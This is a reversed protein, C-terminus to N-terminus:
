SGYRSSSPSLFAQFSDARALTFDFFALFMEGSLSIRNEESQKALCKIALISYFLLMILTYRIHLFALKLANYKSAGDVPLVVSDFTSSHFIPVSGYLFSLSRPFVLTSPTVGSGSGSQGSCIGCSSPQSHDCAESVFAQSLGFSGHCLRPVFSAISRPTGNVAVVLVGVTMSSFVLGCNVNNM